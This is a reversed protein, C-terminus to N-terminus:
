QTSDRCASTHSAARSLSLEGRCLAQGDIVALQFDNPQSIIRREHHLIRRHVGLKAFQNRSAEGRTLHFRDFRLHTLEDDLADLPQARVAAAVDDGFQELRQRRHDYCMVEAYWFGVAPLEVSAMTAAFVAEPSM